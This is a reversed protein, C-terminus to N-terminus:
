GSGFLSSWPSRRQYAFFNYGAKPDQKIAAVQEIEIIRTLRQEPSLWRIELESQALVFRSIPHTLQKGHDEFVILAGEDIVQRAGKMAEIETGEVDLKILPSHQRNPLYLKAVEDVTVTEVEEFTDSDAPHWDKLLSMGQHKKGFLRVRKGSEDLIARHLVVFRENNARANMALIEFNYRSAEIAVVPHRGYLASSAVISWYGMNAGCDILAYPREISRLLLWDIEPEYLGHRETVGPGWYSDNRPYLFRADESPMATTLECDAPKM